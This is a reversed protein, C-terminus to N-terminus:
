PIRIKFELCTEAQVAMAPKNKTQSLGESCIYLIAFVTNPIMMMM